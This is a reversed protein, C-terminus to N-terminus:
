VCIQIENLIEDYDVAVVKHPTRIMGYYVKVPTDFPADKLAELVDGVTMPKNETM